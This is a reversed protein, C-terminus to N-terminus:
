IFVPTKMPFITLVITGIIKQKGFYGYTQSKQVSLTYLIFEISSILPCNWNRHLLVSLQIHICVSIHQRSSHLTQRICKRCQKHLYFQFMLKLPYATLSLLPGLGYINVSLPKKTPLKIINRNHLWYPTLALKDPM